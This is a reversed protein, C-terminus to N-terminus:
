HNYQKPACLDVDVYLTNPSNGANKKYVILIRFFHFPFCIFPEFQAVHECSVIENAAVFIYICRATASNRQFPFKGQKKACM